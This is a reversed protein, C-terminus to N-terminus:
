YEQENVKYVYRVGYTTVCRREGYGGVANKEALAKAEELSAIRTMFNTDPNLTHIQPGSSWQHPYDTTYFFEEVPTESMAQEKEESKMSVM